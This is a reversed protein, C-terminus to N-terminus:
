GFTEVNKLNKLKRRVDKKLILKILEIVISGLTIKGEINMNMYIIEEDYVPQIDFIAKPLLENLYYIFGSLCGTISPDDFGFVFKANFVKPKIIAIVKKIHMFVEQLFNKDLIERINFKNSKKKEHKEKNKEINAPKDGADKKINLSKEKNFIILKVGFGSTNDYTGKVGLFKAWLTKINTVVGHDYKLNLYYEFPIVLLLCILAVMIALLILLMKGIFILIVM